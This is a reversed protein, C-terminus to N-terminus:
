QVRNTDLSNSPCYLADNHHGSRLLCLQYHRCAADCRPSPTRYAFQFFRDTLTANNFINDVVTNWSKPSLDTMNYEQRASYLFKWEPETNEDAISLDAFYNDHEIIRFTNEADVTYIRYGPNLYDFTSASPSVYAVGIPESSIDNMDEYFMTFYDFHVHGFFQGTIISSFRQIVRYYNRSWGELCDYYGPPIHALIHVNEGALEAKKLEEVFWTMTGDPDSQNLYLFFNTNICFGTNISILRLRDTVLTSWSGRFRTSNGGDEKIWPKNMESLEDYLEVPWFEENVSHPAFSNVPVGEHNGLAWYIPTAPFNSKFLSSVNRLVELTGERSYQWDYHDIIDGGVMIYDVKETQSIHRLMNDMTRYPIDCKGITGWFGAAVSPNSREASGKGRCCVPDRCEAESGPLYHFDIHIDTIQLVKLVNPPVISSSPSPPPPSPLSLPRPPLAVTWGEGDPDYPDVCGPILAACIKSPENALRRFVYFFEDRFQQTIGDCVEMPQNISCIMKAFWLIVGETPTLKAFYALPLAVAECGTCTVPEKTNRLDRVMKSLHKKSLQPAADSLYLLLSLFILLRM